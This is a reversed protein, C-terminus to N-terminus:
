NGNKAYSREVLEKFKDNIELEILIHYRSENYDSNAAYHEKSKQFMFIDGDSIPLKKNDTTYSLTFKDSCNLAINVTAYNKDDWINFHGDTDTHPRILGRPKLQSLIIKLYRKHPLREKLFKFLIPCNYISNTWSYPTNEIKDYGYYTHIKRAFECGDISRFALAQWDFRTGKRGNKGFKNRVSIIGGFKNRDLALIEKYINTYDVQLDLKIFPTESSKEVIQDFTKRM